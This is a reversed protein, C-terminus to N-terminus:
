HLLPCLNKVIQGGRCVLISCRSISEYQSMMNVQTKIVVFVCETHIGTQQAAVIQCTM